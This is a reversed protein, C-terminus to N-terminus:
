APDNDNIPKAPWPSAAGNAHRRTWEPALLSYSVSNRWTNNTFVHDRLTGEYAFGLSRILQISATNTPGINAVLRHLDLHEFAFDIMTTAAVQAIGRRQSAPQIAYGLDAARVGSLGLRVFGLIDDRQDAKVIALYYETRPSTQQREIIGNLMSRAEEHSRSNFSLWNTVQDDSVLKYVEALDDHTFERLLIGSGRGARLEVLDPPPADRPSPATM